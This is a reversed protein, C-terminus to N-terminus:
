PDMSVPGWRKVDLRSESPVDSVLGTSKNHWYLRAARNAGSPDSYIVGVVGTLNQETGGKLGLEALPVTILVTYANFGTAVKVTAKELRKVM